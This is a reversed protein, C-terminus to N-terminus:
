PSRNANTDLSWRNPYLRMCFKGSCRSHHSQFTVPKPRLAVTNGAMSQGVPSSGLDGPTLPMMRSRHFSKPPIDAVLPVLSQVLLCVLPQPLPLWNPYLGQFPINRVVRCLRQVQWRRFRQPRSTVQCVLSHLHITQAHRAANRDSALVSSVFFRMLWISEVPLARRSYIFSTNSAIM